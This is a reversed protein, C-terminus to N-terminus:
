FDDGHSSAAESMRALVHLTHVVASRRLDFLHKRQGRYRARAGQGPGRHALTHEVARRSEGVSEQVVHGSRATGLAGGDGRTPLPAFFSM